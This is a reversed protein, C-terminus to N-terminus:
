LVQMLSTLFSTYSIDWNFITCEDGNEIDVLVYM